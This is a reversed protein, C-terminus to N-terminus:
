ALQAIHAMKCLRIPMDLLFHPFSLLFTFCHKRSGRPPRPAEFDFGFLARGRVAPASILFVSPFRSPFRAPCPPDSVVGPGLLLDPFLPGRRDGVQLGRPLRGRQRGGAPNPSSSAPHRMFRPNPVPVPAGSIEGVAARLFAKPSGGKRCAAVPLGIAARKGVDAIRRPDIATESRVGAPGCGHVPPRPRL